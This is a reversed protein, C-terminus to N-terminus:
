MNYPALFAKFIIFESSSLSEKDFTKRQYGVSSLSNNVLLQGEAFCVCENAHCDCVIQSFVLLVELRLEILQIIQQIKLTNYGLNLIKLSPCSQLFSFVFPFNNPSLSCQELELIELNVLMNTKPFLDSFHDGLNNQSLDLHVLSNMNVLSQLDGLVLHSATLNLYNLNLGQLTQGVRDSLLNHSLDLRALHAFSKLFRNVWVRGAEDNPSSDFMNNRSLDLRSLKSCPQISSLTRKVEPWDIFNLSSLKVGRIDENTGLARAIVRNRVPERLSCCYINQVKLEFNKTGNLLQIWNSDGTGHEPIWVDLVITLKEGERFSSRFLEELSSRLVPFGTLDLVKVAQSNKVLISIVKQIVLQILTAVSVCGVRTAQVQNHMDGVLEPSNKLTPFISQLSLVPETWTYILPIVSKTLKQDLAM